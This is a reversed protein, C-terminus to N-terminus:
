KASRGVTIEDRYLDKNSAQFEAKLRVRFSHLDVLRWGTLQWAGDKGDHSIGLILHCADDHIKGTLDRPEYYFTRLTSAASTAEYLKPDLYYVRGTPTHVLRLDPYGSRQADGGSIRPIACTFDGAHLLAILRDEVHRSAENIRRLGQLPSDGANLLVLVKEAAGTIHTRCAADAAVKDPQFPLITRGTAAAIVERLPIDGLAQEAAMVARVAEAAPQAAAPPKADLNYFFALSPVALLAPLIKM